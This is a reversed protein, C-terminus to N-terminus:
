QPRASLSSNSKCRMATQEPESQATSRPSERHNLVMQDRLQKLKVADSSEHDISNLSWKRKQSRTAIGARGERIYCRCRELARRISGGDLKTGLDAPNSIGSIKTIKVKGDQTLKEVWSTPTAIHRIRGAGRRVAKDRGAFADIRVELVAKDIKTNISIDVRLDKLMSVAELGALTGKVLADFESVGSGSHSSEKRPAPPVYCTPVLTSASWGAGAFIKLCWRAFM